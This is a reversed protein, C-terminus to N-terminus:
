ACHDAIARLIRAFEDAVATITSEEHLNASYYWTFRLRTDASGVVELAHTNRERLSQDQGGPDRFGAFLSSDGTGVESTQGHYNFVVQPQEIDQLAGSESLYRLAGYGVGGNPVARLQRRVSKIVEPLGGGPVTLAVPHVAAFWGVTRSLDVGDLLEERGHGELDILVRDRGTWGAMALALASLLIDNGRTRFVGPAKHLLIDTEQETLEVSVTRTSSAVNGGDHDVPISIDGGLSTWYELEQDFQGAAV